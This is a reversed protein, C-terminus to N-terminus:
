GITVAKSDHSFTPNLEYLICIISSTLVCHHGNCIGCLMYSVALGSSPDIFDAWYGESCIAYCIEKAGNIFKFFIFPFSPYCILNKNCVYMCICMHM